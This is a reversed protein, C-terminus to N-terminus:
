RDRADFRSICPNTEKHMTHVARAGYNRLHCSSQQGYTSLHSRCKLEATSGSSIPRLPALNVEVVPQTVWTPM